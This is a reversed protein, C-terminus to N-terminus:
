VALPLELLSTCAHNKGNATLGLGAVAVRALWVADSVTPRERDPALPTEFFSDPLSATVNATFENLITGGAINAITYCTLFKEIDAPLNVGLLSRKPLAAMFETVTAGPRLGATRARTELASLLNDRYRDRETM